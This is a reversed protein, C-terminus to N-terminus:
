LLGIHPPQVRQSDKRLLRLVYQNPWVHPNTEYFELNDEPYMEAAYTGVAGSRSIGALCHVVLPKSNDQLFERIQEAQDQSMLEVQWNYKYEVDSFQLKLLNPHDLEFPSCSGLDFISIVRFIDLLDPAAAIWSLMEARSLTKVRM